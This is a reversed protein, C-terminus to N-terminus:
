GHWGTMTLLEITEVVKGQRDGGELFAARARELGHRTLPPARDALTSTLGQARLDGILTDLDGYRLRLTWGDAVQRAFGARQLLAAGSRPDVAPHLRAAPREADAALLAIRLRPLSGAGILTALAVGGPALAQRQHILAGPLDNVTDLVALSVILGFGGVPYPQELDLTAPQALTVRFRQRELDRALEDGGAGLVLARGPPIQMFGIRELTDEVLAEALWRAPRAGRQLAEARATRAAKRRASFIHPPAASAM